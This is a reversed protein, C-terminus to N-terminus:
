NLRNKNIFKSKLVNIKPLLKEAGFIKFQHGILFQPFVRIQNILGKEMNYMM